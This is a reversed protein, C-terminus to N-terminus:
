IQSCFPLVAPVTHLISSHATRDPTVVVSSSIVLGGSLQGPRSWVKEPCPSHTEALGWASHIITCVWGEKNSGCPLQVPALIFRRGPPTGM